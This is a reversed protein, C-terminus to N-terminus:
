ALQDLTDLDYAVPIGALEALKVEQDAGNSDGPLRFLADCQLLWLTDYELWWEYPKPSILHWLHTLHPVYPCHHRAAVADAAEIAARVNLAVDGQSDPGAIYVRM